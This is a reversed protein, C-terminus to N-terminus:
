FGGAWLLTRPSWMPKRAPTTWDVACKDHILTTNCATSSYAKLFSPGSTSRYGSGRQKTNLGHRM